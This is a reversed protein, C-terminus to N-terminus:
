ATKKKRKKPKSEVDERAIRAANERAEKLQVEGRLTARYVPVYQLYVKKCFREWLYDKFQGNTADHGLDQSAIRVMDLITM